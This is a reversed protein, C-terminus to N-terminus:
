ATAKGRQRRLLLVFFPGGTLATLIGIPIVSLNFLPGAWRCLLEVCVLLVAGVIASTVLGIRQDPGVFMRCIHPVILGVFGIPGALAVAAATMLGVAAFTVLRLKQVSVGTSAAVQDGLTLVNASAAYRLLVVLGLVLPVSCAVLLRWGIEDNLRGMAWYTFDAILHAEVYLNITLMIASNVINVIVGALILTYPDIHGRRQALLYVVACTTIAGVFALTPTSVWAPLDFWTKTWAALALGMLVGVGAGSSIGLVYPEALPNRFLGQLAMGGAALAAGVLAAALLRILRARWLAMNGVKGMPPGYVQEALDAALSAMRTSPQSWEPDTVVIIQGKRAAPLDSWQLWYERATEPSVSDPQCIIVDPAVAVINDIDTPAWLATGPLDAGANVGGIVEILDGVFTGGRSAWPRGTGIVFLMRQSPQGKVRQRVMELRAEFSAKTAEALAQQNVLEGIRDIAITVDALTEITLPVIQVNPNASVVGDFEQPRSLQTLIVDPAFSLIQEVNIGEADGFRPREVGEPLRCFRTVGVVHHGLNMDFLIRTLAPSYSIIRPHVDPSAEQAAAPVAVALMCVVLIALRGLM